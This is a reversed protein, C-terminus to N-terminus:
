RLRTRITAIRAQLKGFHSGSWYIKRCSLCRRFQHYYIRTLPELEDLVDRKDVKALIGNCHICRIFPTILEKLHFRHVIEIVQAGPDLSRPCYGHHVVKHMLLRRDRTLLARDQTTSLAALEADHATPSYLVDFGLLRLDRALKGLHGDAVFKTIRRAQLAEEATAASDAVGYVQIIANRTLQHELPVVVGSCRILDIEPHPVGCAEIADKISTKERLIRTLTAGENLKPLFFLLDASFHFEISFAEQQSQPIARDQM